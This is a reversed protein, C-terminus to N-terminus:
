PMGEGQALAVAQRIAEMLWRLLLTLATIGAGPAVWLLATVGGEQWFTLVERLTVEGWRYWEWGVLGVLAFLPLFLLIGVLESGAIWGLAKPLPKKWTVLLAFLPVLYLLVAAAFPDNVPCGGKLLAPPTEAESETYVRGRPSDM